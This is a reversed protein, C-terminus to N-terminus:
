TETEKEIVQEIQGTVLAGVARGKESSRWYKNLFSLFTGKALRARITRKNPSAHGRRVKNWKNSIDIM